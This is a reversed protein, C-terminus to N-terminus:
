RHLATSSVELFTLHQLERVAPWLEEADEVCARSLTLSRLQTAAALSNLASGPLIPADRIVLEQVICTNTTHTPSNCQPAADALRPLVATNSLCGM